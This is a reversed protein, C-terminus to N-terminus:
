DIALGDFVGQLLRLAESFNGQDYKVRAEKIDRQKQPQSLRARFQQPVADAAAFYQRIAEAEQNQFKTLTRADQIHKRFERDDNTKALRVTEGDKLVTAAVRRDASEYGTMTVMLRVSRDTAPLTLELYGESDTYGVRTGKETDAIVKAALLPVGNAQDVVRVRLSATNEPRQYATYLGFFGAILAAGLTAFAGIRAVKLESGKSPPDSPESVPRSPSRPSPPPPPPTLQRAPAEDSPEITMPIQVLHMAPAKAVASADAVCETLLRRTGRLAEEWQLEVLVKLKGLHRATLLFSVVESDQGPPVIFRKTQKPPEFDPSTLTVKATLGELEGNLGRPFTVPFEKSVVDEPRPEADPDAQLIGKLGPSNPLRILAQLETTQGKVIRGPMAADFVRRREVDSVYTSSVPPPPRFDFDRGRGRGPPDSVRPFVDGPFADSPLTDSPLVDSPLADREARRRTSVLGRIEQAINMFAADRDPWLTVPRGDRPLAQLHAFPAISWDVSRLIVPVVVAEHHAHRRLATRMEVNYCYDSALFDPSVLLLIIDASKVHTDIESESEQGARITRDHWGAILGERNLVSLHKELERRLAEDEHAYAYFIEVPM